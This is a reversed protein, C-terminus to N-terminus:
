LVESREEVLTKVKERQEPTLIDRLAQLEEQRLGKRQERQSAFKDAFAERVGRIKTRQDGNLGLKDALSDVRESVTEKLAKAAEILDQSSESDEIIVVRDEFFDKANERQEPTLIAAIGKLEQEMLERRQCRLARYKGAFQAHTQSIQTRQEASLGLMDAAAELRDKVSKAAAAVVHREEIYERAKQRQDPNLVAAIEKFESEAVDRCKARLAAHRDAQSSLTDRIKQRQESTLGLKEAASDTRDALTDRVAVFKPLGPARPKAQEIRDEAYAKIQECQEPTLIAALAKFEDQLLSKRESRLAERETAHGAGIERIKSKQETTLDLKEAAAQIRESVSQLMQQVESRLCKQCKEEDAARVATSALPVGVVLALVTAGASFM